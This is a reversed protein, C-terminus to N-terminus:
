STFCWRWRTTLTFVLASIGWILQKRWHICFSQHRWRCWSENSILIQPVLSSHIQPSTPASIVMDYESQPGMRHSVLYPSNPAPVLPAPSFLSSRKLIETHLESVPSRWPNKYINRCVSFAEQSTWKWPILMKSQVNWQYMTKFRDQFIDFLYVSYCKFLGYGDGLKLLSWIWECRCENGNHPIKPPPLLSTFIYVCWFTCMCVTSEQCIPTVM